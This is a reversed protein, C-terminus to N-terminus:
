VKQLSLGEHAIEIEELPVENGSAELSAGTYKRPWANTLTYRAVPTGNDDLLQLQGDKRGAEVGKLDVLKRWNWLAKNSDIGRKLTIDGWKLNGPVKKLVALDVTEGEVSATAERFVGATEHGGLVLRFSYSTAPQQGKEQM